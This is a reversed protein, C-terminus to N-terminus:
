LLESQEGTGAASVLTLQLVGHGKRAAPFVQRHLPGLPVGFLIGHMGPLPVLTSPAQAPCATMMVVTRPM